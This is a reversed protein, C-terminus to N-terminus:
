RYGPFLGKHKMVNNERWKQNESEVFDNLDEPFLEGCPINKSFFGEREIEWGKEEPASKMSFAGPILAAIVPLAFMM